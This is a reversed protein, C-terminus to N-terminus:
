GTEVPYPDPDALKRCHLRVPEAEAELRRYLSRPEFPGGEVYFLYRECASAPRASFGEPYCAPYCPERRDARLALARVNFPGAPCLNIYYLDFSLFPPM